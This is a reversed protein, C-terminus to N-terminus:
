VDLIVQIVWLKKEKKIKMEHYTVAKVLTHAEYKKVNDGYIEAELFLSDDKQALTVVVTSLFFNETDLLFM